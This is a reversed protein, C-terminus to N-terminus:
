EEVVDDIKGLVIRVTDDEGPVPQVAPVPEQKDQSYMYGALGAAPVALSLFTTAIPGLGDKPPPPPYNVSPPHHIGGLVVSETGMNDGGEIDLDASDSGGVQDFARRGARNEAEQNAESMRQHHRLAQMGTVATWQEIEERETARKLLLEDSDEPIREMHTPSSTTPRSLLMTFFRGLGM